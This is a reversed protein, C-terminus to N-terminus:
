WIGRSAPRLRASLVVIHRLLADVNGLAAQDETKVVLRSVVVVEIPLSLPKGRIIDSEARRSPGATILITPAYIGVIEVVIIAPRNVPNVDDVLAHHIFERETHPM